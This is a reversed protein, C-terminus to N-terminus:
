NEFNHVNIDLENKFLCLKKPYRQSDPIVMKAHLTVQFKALLGELRNVNSQCIVNGGSILNNQHNRM